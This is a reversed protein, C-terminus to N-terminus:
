PSGEPHQAYWALTRKLTDDLDTVPLTGLLAATASHDGWFDDIEGARRPLAGFELLAPDAGALRYIQRVLNQVSLRPGGGLNLCRGTAEPHAAIGVLGTAIARVDNWERVQAGDTLRLAQKRLAARCSAAVLGHIEGPGISRFPRVVVADLGASRHLQM